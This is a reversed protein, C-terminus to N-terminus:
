KLIQLSDAIEDCNSPLQTTKLIHFRAKQIVSSGEWDRPQQLIDACEMRIDVVSCALRTLRCSWGVVLCDSDIHDFALDEFVLVYITPLPNTSDGMPIIVGCRTPTDPNNLGSMIHCPFYSPQLTVSMDSWAHDM